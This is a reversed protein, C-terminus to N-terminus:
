KPADLPKGTEPCVALADAIVRVVEANIQNKQNPIQSILWKVLAERAFTINQPTLVFKIVFQAGLGLVTQWM